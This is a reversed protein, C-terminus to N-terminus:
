RLQHLLPEGRALSDLNRAIESWRRDVMGTTWAAIHPTMWVNDLEHFPYKSPSVNMDDRRPYAYWVDLTAGRIRKEKLAAWLADEDAIQGRGVNVLVASPKMADFRKADFLRETEPALAAAIVVFDCQALFEDIKALPYQAHLHPVERLTRNCGLVTVGFGQLRGAVARGIAGLGVIGVTSGYLEQMIPGNVRGSFRWSRESRFSADSPVFSTQCWLLLAVMVYEATGEAHGYCNCVRVGPPVAALDIFDVGTGPSQILKLKPAPPFGSNWALSILVDADALARTFDEKPDKELFRETTWPTKVKTLLTPPLHHILSGYFVVKM